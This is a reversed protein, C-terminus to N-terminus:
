YGDSLGEMNRKGNSVIVRGVSDPKTHTRKGM